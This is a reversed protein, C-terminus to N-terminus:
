GEWTDEGVIWGGLWERRNVSLYYRHKLQGVSLFLLTLRREQQKTISLIMETITCLIETMVRENGQLCWTIGVM